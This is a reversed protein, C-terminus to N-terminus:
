TQLWTIIKDPEADQPQDFNSWKTLLSAVFRSFLHFSDCTLAVHTLSTLKRMTFPLCHQIESRTPCVSPSFLLSTIDYSKSFLLSQILKGPPNFGFLCVSVNPPIKWDFLCPFFNRRCECFIFESNWVIALAHELLCRLVFGFNLRQRKDLLTWIRSSTSRRLIM